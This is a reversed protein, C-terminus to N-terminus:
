LTITPVSTRWSTFTDLLHEKEKAKELPLSFSTRPETVFQQRPRENETSHNWVLADDSSEQPNKSEQLHFEKWFLYPGILPLAKWWFRVHTLAEYKYFLRKPSASNIKVKGGKREGTAKFFAPPINQLMTSRHGRNRSRLFPILFIYKRGLSTILIRQEIISLESHFYSM